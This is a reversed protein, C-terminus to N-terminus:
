FLHPYRAKIDKESEWTAEAETFTKHLVKVSFVEKNRLRKVQRDLIAVHQEDYSLTDDMHLREYELVHSPEPIYKRLMSIHFVPHVSSLTPPLALRYAVNGVIELIEFPGISRSILKGKKSFRMVGEM